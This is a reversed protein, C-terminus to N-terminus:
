DFPSIFFKSETTLAVVEDNSAANWLAKSSLTLNESKVDDTGESFNASFNKQLHEKRRRKKRKKKKVLSKRKGSKEETTSRGESKKKAKIEDSPMEVEALHPLNTSQRRM